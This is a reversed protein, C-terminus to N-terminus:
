VNSGDIFAATEAALERLDEDRDEDAALDRLPEVAAPDRAYGLTAVASAVTPGDPRDLCEVIADSHEAVAARDERAIQGLVDLCAAVVSPNQDALGEAIRDTEPVLREPELEGVEVLLNAAAQRTVMQRADEDVNQQNIVEFNTHSDTEEYLTDRDIVDERHELLTADILVDENDLLFEPHDVAVYGLAKSALIRILSMEHLLLEVLGPVAPELAEPHDEAVVSLVIACKTVVVRRDDDLRDIVTPLVELITEEDGVAVAEAVRAAHARVMPDESELGSRLVSPSVGELPEDEEVEIELVEHSTADSM